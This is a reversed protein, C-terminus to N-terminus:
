EGLADLADRLYHKAPQGRVSRVLFLRGQAAGFAGSGRTSRTSAITNSRFKLFQGRTPVIPTRHPGFVGTGRETWDAHKEDSGVQAVVADPDSLQVTTYRISRPLRGTSHKSREACLTRARDRVNRARRQVDPRVVGEMLDHRLRGRLEQEAFVYTLSAV